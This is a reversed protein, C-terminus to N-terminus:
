EVSGYKEEIRRRRTENFDFDEPLDVSGAIDRLLKRRMDYKSKSAGLEARLCEPIAQEREMYSYLSKVLQTPTVDERELVQSGHRKLEEPLRVNLTAMKSM